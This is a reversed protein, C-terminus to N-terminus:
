ELLTPDCAFFRCFVQVAEATKSKTWRTQAAKRAIESRKRSDDVLM